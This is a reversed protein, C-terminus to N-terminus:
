VASMAYAQHDGIDLTVDALGCYYVDIGASWTVTKAPDYISGGKHITAVAVTRDRSDQRFDLTGEGAVHITSATGSSNYYLTGENIVGTTLTASGAITTTGANNTLTVANSNITLSGGSKAITTLPTVGSGCLVTADSAENTVYGIDLVDIVATEGGYIAVGVDGKNVTLTTDDSQTGTTILLPPVGILLRAATYYVNIATAATRNGVSLIIRGSGAGVGEGITISTVATGLELAMPRYEVYGNANNRPLGIKGTYSRKVTLSTLIVTGAVTGLRDLNYLCDVASNEFVVADAGPVDATSWNTDILADNPGSSVVSASRVFTQDDAAGGGAETTTSTATFPVGATDATLTIHTTADAATIEAFEPETSANFAATMLTCVNAVTAATAAVSVSKGNITIVFLDGVEIAAGAPTIFDVQAVAAAGGEWVNTAM